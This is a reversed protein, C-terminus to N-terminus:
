ERGPANSWVVYHSYPHSLDTARRSATSSITLLLAPHFDAPAKSLSGTRTSANLEKTWSKASESLIGIHKTIEYKIDAM